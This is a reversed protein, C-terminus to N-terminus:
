LKLTNKLPSFITPLVNDPVRVAFSEDEPATDTWPLLLMDNPPSGRQFDSLYDDSGSRYSAVDSLEDECRCLPETKVLDNKQISTQM